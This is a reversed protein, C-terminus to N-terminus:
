EGVDQIKEAEGPRLESGKLKLSGYIMRCLLIFVLGIITVIAGMPLWGLNVTAIPILAVLFVEIISQITYAYGFDDLTESKSDPDCCRLLTMGVAVIGTLYGFIFISREFWFNHFLRKGVLFVIIIPWALGIISLVLIPLWFEAIVSLKITAVGFAVLFDTMCSSCKDVVKKDVYQDHKVLKLIFQILLGALMTLCMLPFSLQPFLADLGMKAAYGIGFSIMILSIHWALSDISMSHTTNKGMAEQKEVPIFGRRTEEPLKAAKGVFRTFGKKGAINICIIGGVLGAILGITAFVQGISVCDDRGLLDNLSGGIAAAYGHGGAFGSPLLLAFEPFANPFLFFLLLGGFLLAFGFCLIESGTNILFTDGVKKIVNKKGGIQKGIFIAGFIICILSYPYSSAESSWKIVNLVQPGLILGFLGALLSAPIYFDQLFKIRSRLFQALVLLGAMFSFDVLLSYTDFM